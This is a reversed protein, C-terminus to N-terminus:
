LKEIDKLHKTFPEHPYLPIKDYDYSVQSCENKFEEFTLTGTVLETIYRSLIRLCSLYEQNTTSQNYIIINLGAIKHKLELVEKTLKVTEEELQRICSKEINVM